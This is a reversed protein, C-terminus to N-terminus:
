HWIPLDTLFIVVMRQVATLAFIPLNGCTGCGERTESFSSLSGYRRKTNEKLSPVIWVLPRFVPASLMALNSFHPAFAREPPVQM